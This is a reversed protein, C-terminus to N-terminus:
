YTAKDAETCFSLEMSPCIFYKNLEQNYSAWAAHGPQGLHTLEGTELDLLNLKGGYNVSSKSILTIYCADPSLVLKIFTLISEETHNTLQHGTGAIEFTWDMWTYCSVCLVTTLLLLFVFKVKLIM